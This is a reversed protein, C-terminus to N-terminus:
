RSELEADHPLKDRRKNTKIAANLSTLLKRMCVMEPLKGAPNLRDHLPRIAPSHRAANLTVALLLRRVEFRGGAVQSRGEANRFDNAM